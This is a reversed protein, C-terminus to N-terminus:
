EKIRDLRDWRKGSETYGVGETDGADEHGYERPPTEEGTERAPQSPQEPRTEEVPVGVVNPKRDV